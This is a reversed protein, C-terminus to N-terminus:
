RVLRIAIWTMLGAFFLILVGVVLAANVPGVQVVLGQFAAWLCFGLGVFALLAALLLIAMGAGTRMANRRLLRGEAELLETLAIIYETM